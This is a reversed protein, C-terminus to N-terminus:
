QTTMYTGGAVCNATINVTSDLIVIMNQAHLGIEKLSSGKQPKNKSGYRVVYWKFIPTLYYYTVLDLIDVKVCIPGVKLFNSFFLRFVIQTCDFLNLQV